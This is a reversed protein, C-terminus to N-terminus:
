LFFLVLRFSAESDAIDLISPFICIRRGFHPLSFRSARTCREHLEAEGLAAALPEVTMLTTITTRTNNAISPVMNGAKNLLRWCAKIIAQPFFRDSMPLAM